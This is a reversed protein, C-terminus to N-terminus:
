INKSRIKGAFPFIGEFLYKHIKILGDITGISINDLYNNSYLEYARARSEEDMPSALGKVWKVIEQKNTGSIDMLLVNIGNEDLVDTLYYKGDSAKMKLQGCISSM